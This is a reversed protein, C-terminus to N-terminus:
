LLKTNRIRPLTQAPTLILGALIPPRPKYILGRGESFMTPYPFLRLEKGKLPTKISSGAFIISSVQTVKLKLIVRAKNKRSTSIM